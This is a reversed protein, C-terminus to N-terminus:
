CLGDNVAKRGLNPYPSVERHWGEWVVWDRDDKTYSVFIDAMGRHDRCALAPELKAKTTRGGQAM